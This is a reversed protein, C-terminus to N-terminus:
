GDQIGFVRTGILVLIARGNGPNQHVLCPQDHQGRQPLLPDRMSYIYGIESVSIKTWRPSCSARQVSAWAREVEIYRYLIYLGYGAGAFIALVSLRSTASGCALFHITRWLVVLNYRGRNRRVCSFRLGVRNERGNGTYRANPTWLILFVALDLLLFFILILGKRPRVGM